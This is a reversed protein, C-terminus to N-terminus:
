KKQNANKEGGKTKTSKSSQFENSHRETHCDKCLIICNEMNYKGGNSGRTKRHVQLMLEERCGPNECKNKARELLEKRLKETLKDDGIMEIPKKLIYGEKELKEVAEQLHKCPEAFYKADALEGVKKIRRFIFDRCQCDLKFITKTEDIVYIKSQYKEGVPIIRM